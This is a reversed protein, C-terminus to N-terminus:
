GRRTLWAGSLFSLVANSFRKGLSALLSLSPELLFRVPPMWGSESRVLRRWSGYNYMKELHYWPVAKSWRLGLQRRSLIVLNSAISSESIEVNARSAHASHEFQIPRTKAVFRSWIFNEAHFRSLSHEFPFNAPKARNEFWWTWDPEPFHPLDWLNLMDCTLGAYFWDCPHFPLPLGRRPNVSTVNVALLRQELLPMRGRHVIRVPDGLWKLLANSTIFIDSRVKVAFKTRVKRLGAMTSIVQRNVNHPALNVKDRLFSGPDASKVVEDFDLGLTVSEMWTSLIVQARPYFKRISLLVKQTVNEHEGRDGIVPGQVVFSMDSDLVPTQHWVEQAM